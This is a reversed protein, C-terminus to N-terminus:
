SVSLLSFNDCSRCSRMDCTRAGGGGGERMDEEGERRLHLLHLNPELCKTMSLPVGSRPTAESARGCEM